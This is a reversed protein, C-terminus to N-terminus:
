EYEQEKKIHHITGEPYSSRASSTLKEAKLIATDHAGKRNSDNILRKFNGKNDYEKILYMYPLSHETREYNEQLEHFVISCRNIKNDKDDYWINKDNM